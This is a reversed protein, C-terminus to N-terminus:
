PLPNTPEYGDRAELPLARQKSEYTERRYTEVTRKDDTAQCRKCEADEVCDHTTDICAVAAADRGCNTRGPRRGDPIHRPKARKM